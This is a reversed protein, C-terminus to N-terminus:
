ADKKFIDNAGLAASLNQRARQLHTKVASESINLEQAIENVKLGDFYHLVIISRQMNSLEAIANRIANKENSVQHYSEPTPEQIEVVRLTPQVSERRYSSISAHRISTMLYAGLTEVRVENGKTIANVTNVFAQQVLDEAHTRSPTFLRAYAYYKKYHNTYEVRVDSLSALTDGAVKLRLVKRKPKQYSAVYGGFFLPKEITTASYM